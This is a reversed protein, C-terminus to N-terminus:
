SSTAARPRSVARGAEQFRRRYSRTWLHIAPIGVAAPLVWPVIAAPSDAPIGLLRGATTVAVATHFAIGSGLMAGMHHYWWAMPTPMPDRRIRWYEWVSGLGLAGLGAYAVSGASLGMWLVLGAWLGVVAHLVSLEKRRMATQDVKLRLAAQGLRAGALVIAALMGLFGMFLSVRVSVRAVVDPAVSAPLRVFSVPDVVAWTASTLATAAVAYLCWLFVRGAAVHTRGGKRAFVPVWFAGLGVLGAAIHTVRLAAHVEDM